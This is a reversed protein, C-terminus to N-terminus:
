AGADAGPRPRSVSFMLERRATRAAARDAAGKQRYDQSRGANPFIAKRAAQKEAETDRLGSRDPEPLRSMSGSVLYHYASYLLASAIALSAALVFFGNM